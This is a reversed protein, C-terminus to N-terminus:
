KLGFARVVTQSVSNGQTDGASVRLTAFRAKSPAALHAKWGGGLHRLALKHWTAGDDYSIQLAVSRITHSSPGGTLHSPTVKLDSHRRAKGSLDTSVGYDLQVLPLYAGEVAATSSTFKWETHSSTAYPSMGAGRTSDLVLRYPLRDPAVEAQVYDVGEGILTKGQYLKTVWSVDGEWVIGLHGGSDGWAPMGFTAIIDGFRSPAHNVKNDNLMRPHQVPAFWTEKTTSRPAYSRAASIETLDPTAALQTWKVGPSATVWVAHTGQAQQLTAAGGVAFDFGPSLDYRVDVAQGQKYDRYSTNIRALSGAGPRYTLDTPIAGKHHQVLDYLYDAYPHSSVSLRTRGHRIRQILEDGEDASLSAVPLAAAEPLDWWADLRGYGDHVILLLKAGAKAAAIAQDPATVTDNRRVIAIKGRVQVKAFDSAAGKGAYVTAYNGTGKAMSPSMSQVQLDEFSQSSSAVTLPPQVQRWRTAFTYSGQTVKSTPTAWLSDYVAEIEYSDTFPHLTSYSRYQDVRVSSTATLKPTVARVRRLASANFTLTRDNDVVVQPASLVARGLSHPGNVGPVDAYMWVSYTSPALNLNLSGSDGVEFVQPVTDRAIDKVILTGPLATGHWGTGKVAVNVRRSQKNSGILTHTRLVGDPGSANLIGSYGIDDSAIDLHTAVTVTATGHAPVTVQSASLSFLGTPSGPTSLALDLTVPDAATNTYTVDKSAVQGQTYPWKASAFASASAVVSDKVAAAIDVRGSGGMYPSFQPTSKTTSVLADKLQQGTWDPHTQALLAAAGAVHPTAMSTGSMTQYSGEGESAYQSRAALVDVGPGTLEPKLAHDGKRPGRSSFVALRDSADVAGVTLAADAAGPSAVTSFDPGANGAAIVFLAGTQASLQNVAQSMPDTGDSPGSGLSMSIVKAHQDQAAWEMGALIWSDQGSGDNDLVKGIHLKAGPAVGKEKGDSAAGTGAITSAVHTGHGHRDTVDLGPVFSASAAIRGGFDPHAADIGTDLVAVDVGQGTDGGQWVQPAGIQATTDALTAKVKGDLWIKAIGGTLAPAASKGRAHVSAPATGTLAAWFDPARRHDASLAAGQISDLTRTRTAGTPVAQKRSRTAADTYSVILPLHESHADDYGDALLETVNFLHEDLQGSAIYPMAADPYVYTDKGVSMTHAGVPGGNPGRVTALVHGDGPRTVTVKDGTILTVTRPTGPHAGALGRPIAPAAAPAADASTPIAALVALAAGLAILRPRRFHPLSM